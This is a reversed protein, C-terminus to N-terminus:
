NLSPAIFSSGASARLTLRDMPTYVLGYKPDTSGQGSSYSEDRVALQLELNSLLPASVEVFYTDVSRGDSIPFLRTEIFVDGTLSFLFGNPNSGEVTPNNRVTGCGPDPRVTTQVVGAANRVLNGAADRRPVNYNGPNSTSSSTLGANMQDPRDRLRLRGNTRYDAAFVM